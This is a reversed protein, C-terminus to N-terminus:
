GEDLQRVVFGFPFSSQFFMLPFYISLFLSFLRTIFPCLHLLQARLLPQGHPQVPLDCVLSLVTVRFSAAM